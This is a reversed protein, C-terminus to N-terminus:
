DAASTEIQEIEYEFVYFGEKTLDPSWDGPNTISRGEHLAINPFVKESITKGKPTKVSVKLNVVKKNGMNMIVLPIKDNKGYVIDVNKSGALVPQFVMKITHFVIKSYGYYDILPKQYTATNGGGHLTCWAQGDYDLWRKKRYAEYGSFAQWAQSTRWEDVSLQRGISGNDYELEYSKVQYSPKGKRLEWNPQGASEESEYDFYAREKSDLYDTRFGTERWGMDGSFNKPYPYQRLTTWDAGYSTTHDFNGRTIMPATWATKEKITDGRLNLTGADNPIGNGLRSHNGVPVIFRSPDNPYISEYVKTFWDLGDIEYGRFQPHNGVQWMIISPHNRVQNVFLPLGEFDLAWPSGTRVWTSTTWQFMVGLQDGIEALRPDNVGGSMGHHISMRITNANMRKIMEIAKVLWYEDGSRVTRAIDELPYKYAFLLAGNMMEPIGNIRFTGGEQSITRIGTTTVFDDLKNGAEDELTCVVKYLGPNQYTWLDPNEIEIDKELKFEHYMRINLPYNHESVPVEEEVPFWKIIKVNLSGKFERIKKMEREEFQWDNNRLEATFGITAKNGAISKTYTFVDEIYKDDRFDIWGRGAFAGTYRDSSTHRNRHKVQNPFVRIGIINDKGPILYKSIDMKVPYRNHQVHVVHGNVWIEGGPDITELNFEAVKFDPVRVIKRMYLSEDKFREGGHPFPIKHAEWLADDYDMEQWDKITPKLKFDELLFTHLLFPVDRSNKDKTFKVKDYQVCHINDMRVGKSAKFTLLNVPAELNIDKFDVIKSGDITLNYKENELDLDVSIFVWRNNPLGKQDIHIVEGLNWEFKGEAPIFVNLKFLSRWTQDPIPIAFEAKKQFLLNEDKVVLDKHANWKEIESLREKHQSDKYGLCKWDNLLMKNRIQPLPQPKIGDAINKAEEDTVVLKNWNPNNFFQRAYAEYTELYKVRQNTDFYETKGKFDTVGDAKPDPTFYRLEFSKSITNQANIISIFTGLICIIFVTKKM